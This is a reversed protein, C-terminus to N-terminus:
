PALTQAWVLMVLWAAVFVWPLLLWPFFVVLGRSPRVVLHTLDLSDEIEKTLTGASEHLYALVRHAVYGSVGVSLGSFIGVLCIVTVPTVPVTEAGKVLFGLAAFLLGQLTWLWSLRHNVLTDDHKIRDQLFELYQERDM